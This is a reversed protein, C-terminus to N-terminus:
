LIFRELWEVIPKRKLHEWYFQNDYSRLCIYCSSEIDCPCNKLLTLINVLIEPLKEIAALLYGASGPVRDYLVIEGRSSTEAIGRFTVGIDRREIELTKTVGNRFAESLSLWFVTSWREPASSFRLQLIETSFQHALHIRRVQGTCKSGWPTKHEGQQESNLDIGCKQCIRFGSSSYGRNAKFLRGRQHFGYAIGKIVPHSQFIEEPSGELLFVDTNPPPLQRTLDPEMIPDTISTTFGLPEIYDGGDRGSLRKGCSECNDERTFEDRIYLRRCDRCFRYKKIEPERGYFVLGRSRFRKGDAIIEAGPAYEAIGYERDRELRMKDSYKEQMVRLKVIDQPFAYSPLWSVSSLFDILSQSKFQRAINEIREM